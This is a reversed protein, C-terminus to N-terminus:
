KELERTVKGLAKKVEAVVGDPPDGGVEVRVTIKLPYGATIKAVEGIEDALDQLEAPTLEAERVWIGPKPPIPKPGPAERVKLKVHQAAPFDCPWPGSDLSLELYSKLAGDVVNRM